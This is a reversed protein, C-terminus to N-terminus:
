GRAQGLREELLLGILAELQRIRDNLQELDAAETEGCAAIRGHELAGL